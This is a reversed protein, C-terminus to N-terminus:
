KGLTQPKNQSLNKLSTPEKSSKNDRFFSIDNGYRQKLTALRANKRMTHCGNKTLLRTNDLLVKKHNQKLESIRATHSIFGDEDKWAIVDNVQLQSLSIPKFEDNLIKDIASGYPTYPGGPYNHSGITLGHCAYSTDIGMKLQKKKTEDDISCAKWFFIPQGKQTKSCYLKQYKPYRKPWITPIDEQNVASLM